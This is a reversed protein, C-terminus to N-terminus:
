LYVEATELLKKANGLSVRYFVAALVFAIIGSIFTGIYPNLVNSIGLNPAFESLMSSILYPIFPILLAVGCLFCEVLNILSNSTRIMRPRPTETFDAGKIGNSLSTAGLVFVLFAGEIFAIVTAKLSLHYMFAGFTGTIALIILAFMVIFFYKSRVLNKESIPSSYIRWVAKGEEGLMFTGLSMALISSPFLFTMAAFFFTIPPPMAQSQGITQMIPVLIIVIPVIFVTMLERRRTFARLDKRIIAAEQLSFGLRGLFGTKPAYIGRTVTIAPPEYLGFRRNLLTALLFLAGIFAISLVLLIAGQLFLGSILSYLTLGLWVFPIFWASEQVSAITQIFTLAGSGSVIYFYVVYFIVFFLLSGVFRVWVAARGTSKYIAGIFRMQLIRLVETTTSAMFAAAFVALTSAIAPLMLGIFFSFVLITSAIFFVSALPFGLLSALVSALTHEEWTVPLWYPVQSSLKVGSRQIQQLMTFVLSYVLVLTPLSFFLGLTAQKFEQVTVVESAIAMNYGLGILFGAILGISLGVWYPWYAFFLNERYRTLKRGRILRGSKRDVRM